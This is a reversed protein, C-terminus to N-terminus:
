CRVVHVVVGGGLDLKIEFRQPQGLGLEPQRVSPPPGGGDVASLDIFGALMQVGFIEILHGFLLIRFEVPDRDIARQLQQGLASEGALHGKVVADCAVFVLVIAAVM